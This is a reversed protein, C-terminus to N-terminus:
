QVKQSYEYRKSGNRLGQQTKAQEEASENAGQLLPVTGTVDQALVKLYGGGKITSSVFAPNGSDIV